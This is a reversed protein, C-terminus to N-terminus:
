SDCHTSLWTSVAQFNLPIKIFIRNYICLKCDTEDRASLIESLRDTVCERAIYVVVNPKVYQLYFYYVSLTSTSVSLMM